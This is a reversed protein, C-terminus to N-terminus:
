HLRRRKWHTSIGMCCRKTLIKRIAEKSLHKRRSRNGQKRLPVFIEITGEIEDKLSTWCGTKNKLLNNWDINALYTKMEIYKAKNFNRRWQKKYTYGTKVKINFSIHNHDSSGFPEHVNVTYVLENEFSLMLDLVNGGSTPFVRQTVFCDMTLLLFHHDDGGASELSKWQLHGQNFDGMIVCALNSVDRIAKQLKVYEM